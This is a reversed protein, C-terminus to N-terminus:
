FKFEWDKKIPKHNNYVYSDGGFKSSFGTVISNSLDAGWTSLDQNFSTAGHFMYRMSTVKTTDWKSGTTGINQNFAAAGMFMESMDTVNSTDWGTIDNNFLTKNKFLGSMDTVASTDWNIIHGYLDIAKTSDSVWVDVAAHINSDTLSIEFKWSFETVTNMNGALSRFTGAEIRIYNWGGTSISTATYPYGTATEPLQMFDSIANNTTIIIDKTFNDSPETLIFTLKQTLSDTKSNNVLIKTPDNIAHGTIIAENKSSFLVQSNDTSQNNTGSLEVMDKFDIKYTIAGEIDDGHVIYQATWTNGGPINKITVGNTILSGHSQFVVGVDAPSLQESAVFTLTITDGPKARYQNYSNNSAISISTLTPVINDFTVLTNIDNSNPLFIKPDGGNYPLYKVIYSIRGITDEMNCTYTATLTYGSPSTSYIDKISNGGSNFIIEPIDLSNSTFELTVVHTPGALTPDNPNNSRLTFNSLTIPVNQFFKLSPWGISTGPTDGGDNWGIKNKWKKEMETAGVFMGNLNTYPPVINGIEWTTIDKNFAENYAFMHRMDTGSVDWGSIDQNFVTQHNPFIGSFMYSMDTVKSVDWINGSTNINLNFVPSSYFMYSMNLVKSTNWNTIDGVFVWAGRFMHSMDTVSSVDWKNASGTGINQNFTRCGLFMESMNSVKSTDWGSIDINFATAGYFMAGMNSVNNTDWLSIDDNFTNMDKFLGSM